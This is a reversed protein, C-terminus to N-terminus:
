VRDQGNWSLPLPLLASLMAGSKGGLDPLVAEPPLPGFLLRTATLHDLTLDAPLATEDCSFAGGKVRLIFRVEDPIDVVCEGDTLARMRGKVRGLANILRAWSIIKFQSAPNLSLSQCHRSLRAITETEWPPLMLSLGNEPHAKLWSFLMREALEPTEAKLEALSGGGQAAALYGAFCNEEDFAAFPQAEWATLVRYLSDDNGRDVAMASRMHLARILALTETDERAVPRFDLPAFAAGQVNHATLNMLISTGAMEFGYRNYRQRHGGLRSADAGIEHLETMARDLLASMYGKGTERWHTAVNGTTSFLLREGDITTELPYVGLMARIRGDRKLAFHHTMADPMALRPLMKEFHHPKKAQSFVLDLFDVAQEYDASTLRVIEEM